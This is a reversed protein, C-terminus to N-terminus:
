DRAPIVVRLGVGAQVFDAGWAARFQQIATEGTCHSPAVQRVGLRKLEAIVAEIEGTSKDGLHFGGVILNIEGYGKARKAIEVIGPHACGTIVILGKDTEVILSQEIISTGMEGTTRIHDTVTMLERVQIIPVRKSVRTKFEDPFSRPVFVTALDNVALLADLGGTHDSHVHSLVVADIRRPDIGLAAMNSMLTPGDGGTDFLVTAKGTEVLCAFGWDTKLRADFPLNDYVITLTVSSTARPMPTAGPTHTAIRTPVDTLTMRTPTATVTAMVQTTAPQPRPSPSPPIFAVQGHHAVCMGGLCAVLALLWGWKFRRM